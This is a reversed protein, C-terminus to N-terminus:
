HAPHRRGCSIASSVVFFDYKRIHCTPAASAVILGGVTKLWGTALLESPEINWDGGLIWPGRLRGIAITAQELISLNLPSIGQGDKLWISGLHVGGPIVAGIWAFHLRHAFDDPVLTEHPTLGFGRRATVACGGSPYGSENTLASSASISWGISRGQRKLLTPDDPYIIRKTEQILTADAASRMLINKRASTWSNPNSSDIAWLGHDKWWRSGLLTDASVELTSCDPEDSDSAGM